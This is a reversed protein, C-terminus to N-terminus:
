QVRGLLAVVTATASRREGDHCWAAATISPCPRPSPRRRTPRCASGTGSSSRTVKASHLSRLSWGGAPSSPRGIPRTGTAWLPRPGDLGFVVGPEYKGDADDVLNHATTGDLDGLRWYGVPKAALVAKAYEDTAPDPGTRRKEGSVKELLSLVTDAIKPEAGVELGASRAPWTTYGGLVHQEPPPIYGEAGNALEINFTAALPSRAKIKLGTLGYVENPIATIGLDGVRIAQLKLERTPEDAILLAERAYVEPRTKPKPGTKAALEKAWAM